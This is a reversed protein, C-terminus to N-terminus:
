KLGKVIKEIDINYVGITAEDTTTYLLCINEKTYFSIDAKSELNDFLLGGKKVRFFFKQKRLFQFFEESVKIKFMDSDDPGEKTGAWKRVSSVKEINDKMLNYFQMYQQSERGQYKFNVIEIYETNRELINVIDQYNDKLRRYEEELEDDFRNVEIM